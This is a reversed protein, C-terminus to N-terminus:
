RSTELSVHHAPSNASLRKGSIAARKLRIIGRAMRREPAIDAADAPGALQAAAPAYRYHGTMEDVFLADELQPGWGRNHVIMPHGSPGIREAVIAIHSQGHRNQPRSYTVIDGPWYDDAFESVPLKAGYAALFRRLTEVRRHDISPDSRRGRAQHVLAQLDVGLTRYARIVVDTCVGFLGSVDGLPYSIKRYSDNYIVLDSTQSEAARALAAGFGTSAPTLGNQRLSAASQVAEDLSCRSPRAAASVFAAETAAIEAAISSVVLDQVAPVPAFPAARLVAPHDDVSALNLGDVATSRLNALEGPTAGVAPPSASPHAVALAAPWLAIDDPRAATPQALSVASNAVVAAPTFKAAGVSAIKATPNSAVIATLPAVSALAPLATGASHLYVPLRQSILEKLSLREQLALSMTLGITVIAFPALLMGTLQRDKPIVGSVIERASLAACTGRRAAYWDSELLHAIAKKTRGLKISVRSRKPAAVAVLRKSKTKRKPPKKM